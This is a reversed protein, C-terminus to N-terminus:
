GAYTETFLCHVLYVVDLKDFYANDFAVVFRPKKASSNVKVVGFLDKGGESLSHYIANHGSAKLSAMKQRFLETVDLSQKGDENVRHHKLWFTQKREKDTEFWLPFCGSKPESFSFRHELTRKKYESKTDYPYDDGEFMVIIMDDETIHFDYWGTFHALSRFLSEELIVTVDAYIVTM